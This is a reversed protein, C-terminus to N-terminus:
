SARQCPKLIPSAPSPEAGAIRAARCGPFRTPVDARSRDLGDPGDPWAPDVM